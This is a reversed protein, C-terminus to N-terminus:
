LEEPDDDPQSFLEIVRPRTLAYGILVFVMLNGALVMRHSWWFALIFQHQSLNQMAEPQMSVADIIAARVPRTVVFDALSFAGNAAVAQIALSHAGRRGSLARWCAVILLASLLLNAAAIPIMRAHHANLADIRAKKIETALKQKSDILLTPQTSQRYFSLTQCGNFMGALGFMWAVILAILLYAPRQKEPRPPFSSQM